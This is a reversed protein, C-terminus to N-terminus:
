EIPMMLVFRSFCQLSTETLLKQLRRSGTKMFFDPMNLPGSGAKRTVRSWSSKIAQVSLNRSFM